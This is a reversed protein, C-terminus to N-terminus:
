FGQAMTCGASVPAARVRHVVAIRADQEAIRADKATLEAELEAIRREPDL